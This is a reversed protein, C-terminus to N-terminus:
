RRFRLVTRRGGRLYEITWSRTREATAALLDQGTTIATDNVRLLIDGGRLGARAGLPGPDAIMVGKAGLPLSFESIVAPNIRVVGLGAFPNDDPLTLPARPPDDPATMLQVETQRPKGKRLYRVSLKAGLEASSLRFMMGQPSNVADGGLDLIVDGAQLGALAFPSLEHLANLLVGKPADLGLAEAMGADLRQASVGAWPRDFQENGAQAQDLFRQVLTAPIAFGIGNSGGSRTLIATNIGVLRGQMDVLAGGSNGPNIAADTQIFYGRGRGVSMGSRALGSVIGSSVTQGIGFPNGIALVLEGVELTDSDRLTLAPLDDADKLRLIALDSEEDGLLVEADFERQDNLVVRIETAQGVVHYNSVVYGDSTLIVGSGLTKQVRPESRMLNGFFDDFFPDSAFPNASRQEVVRKVFINVVAPASQRVVPAFSLTIESQSVPARAEALAGGVVFLAVLIATVLKM